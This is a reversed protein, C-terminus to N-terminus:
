RHGGVFFLVIGFVVAVLLISGGLTLGLVIAGYKSPSIGVWTRYPDFGLTADNRRASAPRKLRLRADDFKEVLSWGAWAEEALVERRWTPDRFRSNVSRLIKFEWGEALDTQSYPTLEQEEREDQAKKAAAAAAGAAAYSM